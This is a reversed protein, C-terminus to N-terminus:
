VVEPAYGNMIVDFLYLEAPQRDQRAWALLESAAHEAGAARTPSRLSGVKAIAHEVFRDVQGDGRGLYRALDFRADIAARRAAGVSISDFREPDRQGLTLIANALDAAARLRESKANARHSAVDRIAAISPTIAAGLSTGLVAIIAVWVTDNM